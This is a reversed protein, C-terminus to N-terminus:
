GTDNGRFNSAAEDVEERTIGLLRNIVTWDDAGIASHKKYLFERDVPDSLDYGSLNLRGRKELWRLNREWDGGDPVGDVLEVGFMLAVAEIAQRIQRHTEVVAELYAPDNPNPEERDKDPNTWTPVKPMQIAARAEQITGPPVPHLRVRVGTSLTTVGDETNAAQRKAIDVAPSRNM